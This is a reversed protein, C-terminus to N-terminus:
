EILAFSAVSIRQKKKNTQSSQHEYQIRCQNPRFWRRPNWPLSKTKRDRRKNLYRWQLCHLMCKCYIEEWSDRACFGNFRFSCRICDFLSNECVYVVCSCCCFFHSSSVIFICNYIQVVDNSCYLTSQERSICLIFIHLIAMVIWCM